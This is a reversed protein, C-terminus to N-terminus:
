RETEGLKQKAVQEVDGLSRATIRLALMLQQKADEARRQEAYKYASFSGVVLSAALALPIAAARGWGRKAPQQGQARGIVREAFGTAPEKRRLAQKLEQELDFNM